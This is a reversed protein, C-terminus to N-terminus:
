YRWPIVVAQCFRVNQLLICLATALEPQCRLEVYRQNSKIDLSKCEPWDVVLVRWSVLVIYNALWFINSRITVSCRLQWVLYMITWLYVVKNSFLKFRVLYINQQMSVYATIHLLVNLLITLHYDRFIKRCSGYYNGLLWSLTSYLGGFFKIACKNRAFLDPKIEYGAWGYPWKLLCM